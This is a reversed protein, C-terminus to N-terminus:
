GLKLVANELLKIWDGQREWFVTDNQRIKTTEEAFKPWYTAIAAKVDDESAKGNDVLELMRKTSVMELTALFAHFPGNPQPKILPYEYWEFTTKLVRIFEDRLKNVDAEAYAKMFANISIAVSGKKKGLHAFAFYRGVFDYAGYHVKMKPSMVSRLLEGTEIEEPTLPHHADDHKEALRHMMEHLKTGQYVANRIEQAQLKEAGTNYRRFIQYLADRDIDSFTHLVLPANLIQKKYEVDLDTFYQNAAGSLREGPGWSPEKANFTKFRRREEGKKQKPACFRDITELRQRGDIVYTRKDGSEEFLLLSPIPLGLLMSEILRRQKKLPWVFNRQWPPNLVLRGDKIRTLMVEVEITTTKAQYSYGGEVSEDEDDSTGEGAGDADNDETEKKLASYLLEYCAISPTAEVEDVLDDEWEEGLKEIVQRAMALVGDAPIKIGKAIAVQYWFDGIKEPPTGNNLNLLIAVEQLIQERANSAPLSAPQTM